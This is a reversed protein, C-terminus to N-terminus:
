ITICFIYDITKIGLPRNKLEVVEGNFVYMNTNSPLNEFKSVGKISSIVKAIYTESINQKSPDKSFFSAIIDNQLIEQKLEKKTMKLHPNRELFNEIKTSVWDSDIEVRVNYLNHARAKKKLEEIIDM